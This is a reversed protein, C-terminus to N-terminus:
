DSRHIQDRMEESLATTVDSGTKLEQMVFRSSTENVGAIAVIEDILRNMQERSQVRSLVVFDVDGMTYFAEVIGDIELLQSGIEDAYGREHSVTVETIVLMNLGLARPDITASVKTIVDNEKLKNLRYHITSKSLDLREALEELSRDADEEVADLIELDTEDLQPDM